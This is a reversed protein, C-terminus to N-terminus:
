VLGPLVPRWRPIAVAIVLTALIFLEATRQVRTRDGTSRLALGGGAYVMTIAVLMLPVHEVLFFRLHPAQMAARLGFLAYQILPSVFALAVGLLVQLDLARTFLLVAWQDTDSWPTSGLWGRYAGMLTWAATALVIWRLVSRADLIFTYM